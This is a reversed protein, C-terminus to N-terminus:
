ACVCVRCVRCVRGVVRCVRCPVCPVGQQIFEATAIDHWMIDAVSHSVVGLLFAILKQARDPWAGGSAKPYHRLIHGVV